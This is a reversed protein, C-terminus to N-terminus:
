NVYRGVVSLMVKPIEDVSYSGPKQTLALAVLAAGAFFVVAGMRPPRGETWASLLSPITLVVLVIGITLFLDPDM